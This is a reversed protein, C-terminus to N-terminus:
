RPVVSCLTLKNMVFCGVARVQKFAQILTTRGGMAFKFKAKMAFFDKEQEGIVPFGPVPTTERWLSIFAYIFYLAVFGLTSYLTSQPTINELLKSHLEM